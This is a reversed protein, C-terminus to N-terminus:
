SPFYLLLGLLLHKVNTSCDKSVPKKFPWQKNVTWLRASLPNYDRQAQLETQLLEEEAYFANNHINNPGLKEVKVNVELVQNVSEGSKCDVAMDMRAVFFHQHVLAYLGPANM